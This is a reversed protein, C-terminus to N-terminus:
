GLNEGIFADVDDIDVGMVYSIEENLSRRAENYIQEDSGFLKKGDAERNIKESHLTKILAVLEERTGEKLVRRFEMKRQSANEIWRTEIAPIKKILNMVEEPNLLLKLNSKEFDADKPIYVTSSENEIPKLIYYEKETDRIERKTIGVVECVGESDHLIRDSVRLHM